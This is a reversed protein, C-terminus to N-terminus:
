KKLILNKAQQIQVNKRQGIGFFKDVIRIADGHLEVNHYIFYKRVIFRVMQKTISLNANDYIGEARSAFIKFNAVNEQMMLNQIRYNTNQMYDYKELDVITKQTAATTSVADYISLIFAISQNQLERTIMDETILLGKRTRPEQKLIEEIIQNLNEDIDKLMFHLLKNPYSYLIQIIVAKDEATLIHRFSPLIKAVLQLYNISKIIKNSFSNVKSVDYSYLSDSQNNKEAIIEKEISNKHKKLSEKDKKDPIKITILNANKSLYEINRKDLDLEEWDNMHAIISQIIPTLIQTNSTIYSLFLIIDGNIGFCINDLVEKLDQENEGMQCTRNLHQAVFFALLNEDCFEIEFSLSSTKMINSKVAVDYVYRVCLDDDDYREKYVNVAQEFEQFSIRQYRKVFHIYHAVYDLAVLIEDVDADEKTNNAIRYTINAFFVKSFVNTENQNKIHSFRLYYDVFQHIFDPTLQFYKIQSTIDENIKQCKTEVDLSPNEQAYNFCIKKILEERKVYYFPCISLRYFANDTLKEVTRDRINLNWDIGCFTIIYGFQDNYEALFNNWKDSVKDSGDVVLIKKEASLQLFEDVDANDGYEYQIANKLVSTVRKPGFSEENLYLVTYEELLKSSLYKSLTTKGTRSGGEIAIKRKEFLVELFKEETNITTNKIDLGADKAELSPFVFYSSYNEGDREYSDSILERQFENTIRFNSNSRFVVNRDNIVISPKYVRGSFVYKYGLLVHTETDLLLANFGHETETGYLAIGSSVDLHKGNVRKEENLGFHEHGVFLLDTSENIFNYLAHKSTDIFWEPSHHIVSVIYKQHEMRNLKELEKAPIYHLGKDENGSGLLSFAASNILNFRVSFGDYRVTKIDIVKEKSFCRNRNAFSYFNELQNLDDYFKENYEKSSYYSELELNNRKPNYVQNDHNGPVIITQVIKGDIYTNSITKAIYGIMRGATDYAEKEGSYAIDGSFILTCEDFGGIQSLAQVIAYPKIESLDTDRKIHADSLHLFLIKM